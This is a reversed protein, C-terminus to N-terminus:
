GAYKYMSAPTQQKNHGNDHATTMKLYLNDFRSRVKNASLVNAKEFDNNQSWRIVAEINQPDRKDNTLMLNFTKGWNTLINKKLLAKPNNSVILEKLLTALEMAKESPYREKEKERSTPSVGNQSLVPTPSPHDNPLTPITETFAWKSPNKIEQHKSFNIVFGYSKNDEDFKVIDGITVLAELHKEIDSKTLDADYPFLQVKIQGPKWEFVGRDDSLNWLGIFLLRTDRPVTALEENLWFQPKITRIRAM